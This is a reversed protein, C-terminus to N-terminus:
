YSSTSYILILLLTLGAAVVLSILFYQPFRKAARTVDEVSKVEGTKRFYFVDFVNDPYLHSEGEEINEETFRHTCQEGSDDVEVEYVYTISRIKQKKKDSWLVKEDVVRIVKATTRLANMKCNLLVILADLSKFFTYILAMSVFAYAASFM